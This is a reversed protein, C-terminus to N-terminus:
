ETQSLQFKQPMAICVMKGKDILDMSFTPENACFVEAIEPWHPALM